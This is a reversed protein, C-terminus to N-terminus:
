GFGSNAAKRHNDVHMRVRAPRVPSTRHISINQGRHAGATDRGGHDRRNGVQRHDPPIRQGPPQFLHAIRLRTLAQM